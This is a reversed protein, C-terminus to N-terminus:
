RTLYVVSTLSTKAFLGAFFCLLVLIFVALLRPTELGIFSEFPILGALPVTVARIIQLAKGLIIILLLFPALFFVGGVITMRLVHILNRMEYIEKNDTPYNIFVYM